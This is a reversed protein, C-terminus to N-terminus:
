FTCQINLSASLCGTPLETCVVFCLLEVHNNAEQETDGGWGGLFFCTSVRQKPGVARAVAGQWEGEVRRGRQACRGGELRVLDWGEAQAEAGGGLRPSLPRARTVLFGVGWFLVARRQLYTDQQKGYNLDSCAFGGM